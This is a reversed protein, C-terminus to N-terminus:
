SGQEAERSTCLGPTLREFHLIAATVPLDILTRSWLRALDLFGGRSPVARLLERFIQIMQPGFRFRFDPPLGRILFAYLHLSIRHAPDREAM